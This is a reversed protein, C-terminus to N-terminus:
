FVKKLTLIGAGKCRQDPCFAERVAAGAYVLELDVGSIRTQLGLRYNVTLDRSDGQANRWQAESTRLVGLEALGSFETSQIPQTYGAYGYVSTGADGLYDNSIALGWYGVSRPRWVNNASLKAGLEFFDQPSGTHIYATLHVDLTADLGAIVDLRTAYGLRLRYESGNATDGNSSAWLTGYGGGSRAATLAGFIAAEGTGTDVGRFKYDSALGMVGSITTDSLTLLDEARVAGNQILMGWVLALLLPKARRTEPKQMM